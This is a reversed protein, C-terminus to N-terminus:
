AAPLPPVPQRLGTINILAAEVRLMDEASIRGIVAGIADKRAPTTKDVMVQSPVSLGNEATPEITPRILPADALFSTFPCTLVTLHGDMFEDAQLIVAPRPKKLDGQFAATVIDGRKLIM